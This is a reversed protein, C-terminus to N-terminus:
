IGNLHPMHRTQASRCLRPAACFLFSFSSFNLKQPHAKEARQKGASTGSITDATDSGNRFSKEGQFIRSSPFPFPVAPPISTNKNQRHRLRGLFYDFTIPQVQYDPHSASIDCSDLSQEWETAGRCWDQIM